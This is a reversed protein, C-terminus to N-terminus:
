SGGPLNLIEGEQKTIRFFESGFSYVIILEKKVGYIPDGAIDNTITVSLKNDKILKNLLKSIDIYKERKGYLASIINLDSKQKAKFLNDIFSKIEKSSTLTKSIAFFAMVTSLISALLSLLFSAKEKNNKNEESKKLQMGESKSFVESQIKENTLVNINVVDKPNLLEFKLRLQDNKIESEIGGFEFKPQTEYSFNYIRFITDNAPFNILVAIGTLPVQGTNELKFQNSVLYPSVAGNIVIQLGGTKEPELYTIPDMIKYTLEKSEKFILPLGFQIFAVILGVILPIVFLKSINKM